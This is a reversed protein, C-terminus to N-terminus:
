AQATKRFDPDYMTGSKLMAVLVALLRDAVGRLARGHSHGKRRLEAYHQRSREDCQASVRSWHYIANRLRENCSQRMHVVQRKGSRRTIPAVGSYSRLAHYDRDGLPQSAEALMTAAVVRGAGPLSLLLTVDRHEAAEGESSMESLVTYIRSAIDKRQQHLLRLRPILLLVHESAAEAAGPALQLAPCQLQAVIDDASLRRIRNSRLIQEVKARKLKAAKAPLPALELLQWFWPEDVGPCLDAMQPFYRRLLERLQHGTRVQEHQVDEETRSLERIRIVLPADLRVRHFLPMDTRLSDAIVFADRRDDKAGAVTHRDRFRDMQKPNLSYVSFRREVLTEVVAGRPIEIGVAVSEPEGGALKELYIVFQAIGSGSHEVTKRDIVQQGADLVCVEHSETAWDIGVFYRYQESM